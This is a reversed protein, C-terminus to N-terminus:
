STRLSPTTLVMSKPPMLVQLSIPSATALLSFYIGKYSMIIQIIEYDSSNDYEQKISDYTNLDLRKMMEAEESASLELDANSAYLLLFTTFEEFNWKPHGPM